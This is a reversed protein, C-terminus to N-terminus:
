QLYKGPAQQGSQYRHRSNTAEQNPLLPVPVQVLIEYMCSTDQVLGMLAIRQISSSSESKTNHDVGIKRM